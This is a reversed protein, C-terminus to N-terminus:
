PSPRTEESAPCDESADAEATEVVEEIMVVFSHEVDDDSSPPVGNSDYDLDSRPDSLTAYSSGPEFGEWAQTGFLEEFIEPDPEPEDSPLSEESLEVQLSDGVDM